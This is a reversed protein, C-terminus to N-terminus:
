KKEIFNSATAVHDHQQLLTDVCRAFVMAAEQQGEMFGRKYEANILRREKIYSVHDEMTITTATIM